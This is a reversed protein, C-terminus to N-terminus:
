PKVLDVLKKMVKYHDIISIAVKNAFTEDYIHTTTNRIEVIEILKKVEKEDIIKHEYCARFITRSGTVDTGFIQFLYWKVFKWLMEYFLEFHKIVSATYAERQAISIVGSSTKYLDLARELAHMSKILSEYKSTLKEM